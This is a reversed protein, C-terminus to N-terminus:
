HLHISDLHLFIQDAFVFFLGAVRSVMTIPKSGILVCIFEAAYILQEPMSMGSHYMFCSSLGPALFNEHSILYDRLWTIPDPNLAFLAKAILPSGDLSWEFQDIDANWTAVVVSTALSLLSRDMAVRRNSHHYEFVIKNNNASRSICKLIFNEQVVAFYENEGLVSPQSEFWLWYYSGVQANSVKDNLKSLVSTVSKQKLPKITYKSPVGANNLYLQTELASGEDRGNERLFIRWGDEASEDGVLHVRRTKRSETLLFPSGRPIFYKTSFSLWEETELNWFLAHTKDKMDIPPASLKLNKVFHVDAANHSSRNAAMINTNMLLVSASLTGDHFYSITNYEVHEIVEGDVPEVWVDSEPTWKGAQLFHWSTKASELHLPVVSHTEPRIYALGSDVGLRNGLLWTGYPEANELFFLYYQNGDYYVNKDNVQKVKKGEAENKNSEHDEYLLTFVRSEVDAYGPVGKLRFSKLSVPVSLFDHVQFTLSSSSSSTSSLNVQLFGSSLYSPSSRLSLSVRVWVASLLFLLMKHTM